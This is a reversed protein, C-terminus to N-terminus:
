PDFPKATPLIAARQDRATRHHNLWGAIRDRWTKEVRVVALFGIPNNAPFREARDVVEWAFRTRPWTRLAEFLALLNVPEFVHFHINIEGGSDVAGHYVKKLEDKKAPVDGPATGPSYTAWDVGDVFDDIHTGDCVTTGREFDELMHEVTTLLRGHDWTYRRDPVLCYIIGGPRLVRYWEALAQVPNPIHELVHSTVVYDLSNDCFPLATADGYYDALCREGAYDRFRDVYIPPPSLGPVPSKFAGIEVGIKGHGIWLAVKEEHTM